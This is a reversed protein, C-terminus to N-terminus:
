NTGKRANCPRCLVQLNEVTDPGGKSYPVIHDLTLDNGSGCHRCNRDRNLVERRVPTPVDRRARGDLVRGYQSDRLEKCAADFADQTWEGSIERAHNITFKSRGNRCRAMFYVLQSEPTMTTFNPDSWISVNIRHYGTIEDRRTSM